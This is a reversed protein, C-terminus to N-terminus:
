QMQMAKRVKIDNFPPKDNRPDITIATNAPHKIQLIEPNTKRMAAALGPSIQNLSM